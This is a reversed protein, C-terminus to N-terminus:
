SNRVCPDTRLIFGHPLVILGPVFTRIRLDKTADKELRFAILQHVLDGGGRTLVYTHKSDALTWQTANTDKLYVSMMGDWGRKDATATAQSPHRGGIYSAFLLKVAVCGPSSNRIHWILEFEGGYCSTSYPDSDRGECPYPNESHRSDVSVNPSREYFAIAAPRQNNGTGVPTSAGPACTGFPPGSLHVKGAQDRTTQRPEAPETYRNAPAALFKWGVSSTQSTFTVDKEGFWKANTYVGAPTGWGYGGFVGDEPLMAKGNKVITGRCCPCQINGYAYRRDGLGWAAEPTANGGTAVCRLQFSAGNTSTIHVRADASYGQNAALNFIAAPETATASGPTDRFLLATNSARWISGTTCAEQVRFSPTQGMAWQSGITVAAGSVKFDVRAHDGHPKVLLHFNTAQLTGKVIHHMYFSAETLATSGNTVLIRSYVGQETPTVPETGCLLGTRSLSEPNNSVVIPPGTFGGFLPELSDYQPALDYPVRGSERHGTTTM